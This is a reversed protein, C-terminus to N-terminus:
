QTQRKSISKTSELFDELEKLAIQTIKSLNSRQLYRDVRLLRHLQIHLPAMMGLWIIHSWIWYNPQNM